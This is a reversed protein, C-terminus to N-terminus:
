TGPEGCYPKVRGDWRYSGTLSRELHGTVWWAPVSAVGEGAGGAAEAELGRGGRAEVQRFGMCGEMNPEFAMKKLFNEILHAQLPPCPLSTPSLSIQWWKIAFAADM